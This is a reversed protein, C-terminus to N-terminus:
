NEMEEISKYNRNIVKSKINTFLKGVSFKYKLTDKEKKIKEPNEYTWILTILITLLWIILIFIKKKNIM